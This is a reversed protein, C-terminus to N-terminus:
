PVWHSSSLDRVEGDGDRKFVGQSASTRVASKRGSGRDTLNSSSQQLGCAVVYWVHASGRAQQCPLQVHVMHMLAPM